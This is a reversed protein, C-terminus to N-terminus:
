PELVESTVGPETQSRQRKKLFSGLEEYCWEKEVNAVAARKVEGSTTRISNFTLDLLRAVESPDRDLVVKSPSTMGITKEVASVPYYGHGWSRPEHRGVSAESPDKQKWFEM